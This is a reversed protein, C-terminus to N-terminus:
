TIGVLKKLANAYYCYNDWTVDDPILHDLDPIYRGKQLAPHIRELEQDIARPGIALARKDIGGMFALRPFKERWANVDVGAAVEMPFLYNVGAAMMCPTIKEPNGDTDVSIVPIGHERAFAHIRRYNPGLFEEWMRPSILPGARYCMDEWLHIVDVRVEQVVQEFVTLYITTIHDMIEHVLDPMTHFAILGEEDGMLWRFPGFVGGDPYGGLQIPYGKEMWERAQERWSGSLRAPDDPNLYREKFAEWDRRDKVPFEVFEPMSQGRKYDRRVIGWTDTFTVFNEDEHLVTREIKPCPGLNVPVELPTQDPGFITRHDNVTPPKGQTKWKEWTTDWPGWSLWFPARDAPEGLICATFRERDNM